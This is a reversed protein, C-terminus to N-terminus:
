CQEIYNAKHIELHGLFEESQLSFSQADSIDQTDNFENLDSNILDKIIIVDRGKLM